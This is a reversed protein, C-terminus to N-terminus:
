GRSGRLAIRMEKGVPTLRYKQLRSNPKDPVTMEILRQALAPKIYNRIFHVKDKLRLKRQMAARSMEGNCVALVKAVTPTVTPAVTPTLNTSLSEFIVDLMFTIFPAGDNKANSRNIAAYYGSQNAHIMNEVAIDAFLSNWRSLILTQWLRGIRGNGDLFPHIVEFEYHFVAGAVLPHLETTKLWQFLRQMLYHLRDAPPAVHIVGEKGMIGASKRRYKGADRLLGSMMVGHAALLDKPQYPDWDALREYAKLANKVELVERPPAVVRKGDLIATIQEETLTNGEIAVSGHVTRIRNARRLRLAQGGTLSLRGAAECIMAVQSVIQGTITYVPTYDDKDM